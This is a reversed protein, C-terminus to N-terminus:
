MPMHVHGIGRQSAAMRALLARHRHTVSSNETQFSTRKNNFNNNSQRAINKYSYIANYYKRDKVVHNSKKSRAISEKINM